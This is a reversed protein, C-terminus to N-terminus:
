RVQFLGYSMVALALTVAAVTSIGIMMHFRVSSAEVVPQNAIWVGCILTSFLLLAAVVDFLIVVTRM